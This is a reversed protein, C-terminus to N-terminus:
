RRGLARQEVLEGVVLRDQVRGLGLVLLEGAELRIDAVAAAIRGAAALGAVVELRDGLVGADRDAQHSDAGAAVLHDPHALIGPLSAALAGSLAAIYEGAMNSFTRTALRPSIAIRTM